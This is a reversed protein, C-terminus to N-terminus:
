DEFTGRRRTIKWILMSPDEDARTYITYGKEGAMECYARMVTLADNKEQESDFPTCQFSDPNQLTWVYVADVAGVIEAPLMEIVSDGLIRHLARMQTEPQKRRKPAKEQTPRVTRALLPNDPNQSPHNQLDAAKFPIVENDKTTM